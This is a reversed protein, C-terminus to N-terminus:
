ASHDELKMKIDTLILYPDVGKEESMIILDLIQQTFQKFLEPVAHSIFPIAHNQVEQRTIADLDDWEPRGDLMTRLNWYEKASAHVAPQLDIAQM